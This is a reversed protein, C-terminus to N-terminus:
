SSTSGSNSFTSSYMFLIWVNTADFYHGGEEQEVLLYTGRYDIDGTSNFSTYYYGPNAVPTSIMITYNPEPDGHPYSYYPLGRIGFSYTREGQTVLDCDTDFYFLNPYSDYSFWAHEEAPSKTSIMVDLGKLNIRDGVYYDRYDLDSVSNTFEYDETSLLKYLFFDKVFSTNGINTLRINRDRYSEVDINSLTWKCNNENTYTSPYLGFQGSFQGVGEGFFDSNNDRNNYALLVNYQQSPNNYNVRFRSSFLFNNGNKTVTFESVYANEAACYARDETITLNVNSTVPYCPNGDFYAIGYAGLVDDITDIILVKDNSNLSAVDNVREYFGMTDALESALVRNPVSNNNNISAFAVVSLMATLAVVIGKISKKM